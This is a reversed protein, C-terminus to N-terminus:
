RAVWRGVELLSFTTLGKRFQQRVASSKRLIYFIIAVKLLDKTIDVGGEVVKFCDQFFVISNCFAFNITVKDLYRPLLTAIINSTANAIESPKIIACNGAAIAGGVSCHYNNNIHIQLSNLYGSPWAIADSSLELSGYDTGCGSPWSTDSHWGTAHSFVETFVKPDRLSICLIYFLM